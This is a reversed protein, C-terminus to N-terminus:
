DDDTGSPTQSKFDSTRYRELQRKYFQNRPDLTRLERMLTEANTRDENRFYCEALNARYSRSDPDLKVAEKAHSLGDALRRQTGASLYALASHAWASKPNQKLVSEYNAWVEAVLPDADTTRKLRAFDPATAVLVEASGPSLKFIERLEKIAADPQNQVLYDRAQYTRVNMPVSLYGIGEVFVISPTRLMYHMNRETANMAKPFERLIASARAVQTWVNGRMRGGHWISKLCLDRERRLEASGGRSSLEELFRGRMQGNGLAVWHSKQIRDEGESKKGDLLLARGSLYLLIPNDSYSKWGRYYVAAADAHRSQNQLLSGYDVWVRFLEDVGYVWARPAPDESGENLNKVALEYTKEADDLKGTREQLTAVAILTISVYGRRDDLDELKKLYGRSSEIISELQPTSETQRLLKRIEALMKAGDTRRQSRMIRWIGRAALADDEFILEFPDQTAGFRDDDAELRMLYEGAHEIALPIQGARVEARLLDRVGYDGNEVSPAYCAKFEAQAAETQGLQALYRARRIRYLLQMRRSESSADQDEPNAEVISLADAFNLRAAHLDALLNPTAKRAQLVGIGELTKNNMLLALGAQGVDTTSVEDSTDQATKLLDKVAVADNAKRARFLKVGLTTLQDGENDALARWRNADELLNARLPNIADSLNLDEAVKIARDTKGFTQLTVVLAGKGWEGRQGPKEALLEITRIAADPKNRMLMFVAYNQWAVFDPNSAGIALLREARDLDNEVIAVPVTRVVRRQFNRYLTLGNDNTFERNMIADLAELGPEKLSLLASIASEQTGLEGTRFRNIQELIPAPTEPYIGWDFKELIEAARNAVEPSESKKAQELVGRAAKGRKFLEKTAADRVRFIPSGLNKALQELTPPDTEAIAGATPWALVGCMLVIAVRM